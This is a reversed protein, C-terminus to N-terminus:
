SVQREIERCALDEDALAGPDLGAQRMLEECHVCGARGWHWWASDIHGFDRLQTSINRREGCRCMEGSEFKHCYDGHYYVFEHRHESTTPESM